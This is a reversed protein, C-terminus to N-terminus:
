RLEFPKVIWNAIQKMENAFEGVSLWKLMKVFELKLKCEFTEM